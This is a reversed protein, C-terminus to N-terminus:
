PQGGTAAPTAASAGTRVRGRLGVSQGQVTGDEAELVFQWSFEYTGEAGAYRGTGGVFTGAIKNGTATGEGRLESSAMVVSIDFLGAANRVAAHEELLSTYQVPMEWGGFEVMRAGHALHREYLPTRKLTM